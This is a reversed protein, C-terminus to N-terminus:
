LTLDPIGGERTRNLGMQLSRGIRRAFVEFAEAKAPPLVHHATKAFLDLWRAFDEDKIESIGQHVAMPNGQYSREKLMVNGWFQEIKTIHPEWNAETQGVHNAFIPGLRPDARVNSYFTAVLVKIDERTIGAKGPREM